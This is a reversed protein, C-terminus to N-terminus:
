QGEPLWLGTPRNKLGAPRNPFGAWPVNAVQVGIAALRFCSAISNERQRDVARRSWPNRIAQITVLDIKRAFLDELGHLLGFYADARDGPALPQFEVLFDLDSAEADFEESVASGFLELRRVHHRRYL